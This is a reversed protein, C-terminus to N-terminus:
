SLSASSLVHHRPHHSCCSSCPHPYSHCRGQHRSCSCTICSVGAQLLLEGTVMVVRLHLAVWCAGEVHKNHAFNLLPGDSGLSSCSSSRWTGNLQKLNRLNWIGRLSLKRAATIICCQEILAHTTSSVKQEAQWRKIGDINLKCLVYDCAVVSKNECWMHSNM